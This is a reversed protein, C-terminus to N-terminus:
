LVRRLLGSVCSRARENHCGTCYRTITAGAAEEPDQPGSQAGAAATFLLAAVLTRRVSKAPFVVHHNYELRM